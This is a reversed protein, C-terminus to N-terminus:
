LSLPKDLPKEFKKSFNKRPKFPRERVTLSAAERSVGGQCNNNYWFIKFFCSPIKCLFLIVKQIKM